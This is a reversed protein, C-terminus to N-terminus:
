RPLCGQSHSSSSSSSSGSVVTGHFLDSLYNELDDPGFRVLVGLNKEGSLMGLYTDYFERYAPTLKKAISVKVKDRLKRDPIVWSTQKRYAEEFAANFKRFIGKVAEVSTGTSNSEPLSSFVKNWALAEYSSAYQEVKRAHRSFWEHGLLYNLNTLKVKVVVFNINNALFLYSLSVDKYLEAKTDLKCLLVLILRALHLPVAPTPGDGQGPSEFYSEPMPFNNPLPHDSLIESLIKSYDVLSSIFAMVSQTLPHVGGGPVMTRSSDTQITSEFAAIINHITQGLRVLSSLAQLNVASTSEYSFISEIDPWLEFTAGYLEMFRYIKGTSPKNRSAMEPFRFLNIAGEKTIDSFCSERITHSASFVHDCLNREGRFITKVAVKVATLWNNIMHDLATWSLKQIQASRFGEIGLQYLNEDTISKRVLKYIKVCEQGYGSSIMCDAISKLNAMALESIPGEETTLEGPYEEEIERDFTSSGRSSRGSISEPDLQNRNTSLIHHFEKELRKMAIQMLNQALVLKDSNSNTSIFFDMARRLDKVSKLFEVSERRNDHFLSPVTNDSNNLDWRTIISEAIELNEEMMSESFTHKPAFRIHPSPFSYSPSLPKSSSFLNSIGERPMAQNARPTGVIPM